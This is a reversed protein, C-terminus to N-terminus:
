VWGEKRGICPTPSLSRNVRVDIFRHFYGLVMQRMRKEEIEDRGGRLVIAFFQLDGPIIQHAASPEVRKAKAFM